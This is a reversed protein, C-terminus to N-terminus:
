RQWPKRDGLTTPIVRAAGPPSYDPKGERSEGSKQKILNRLRHAAKEIARSKGGKLRWVWAANLVDRWEENGTLNGPTEDRLLDGFARETSEWLNGSYIGKAPPKFRGVTGLVYEGWRALQQKQEDTLGGPPKARALAAAWGKELQDVVEGYPPNDAKDRTRMKNLTELIIHARKADAPEDGKDTFADAPNLRLLIASCAYAPGMVCAAFADALCVRMHRQARERDNKEKKNKGPPVEKAIYEDWQRAGKMALVHATFPVAWITWEPFGMRISRALAKANAEDDSGVKQTAPIALGKWNKVIPGFDNILQDAIRCTGEDLGTERLALGGLLEVYNSFVVPIPKSMIESYAEWASRLVENTVGAGNDLAKLNDSIVDLWGSLENSLDEMVLEGLSGIPAWRAVVEGIRAQAESLTQGVEEAEDRIGEIFKMLSKDVRPPEGSNSFPPQEAQSLVYKVNSWVNSLHQKAQKINKELEEIQKRGEMVSRSVDDIQIQKLNNELAELRIKLNLTELKLSDDM